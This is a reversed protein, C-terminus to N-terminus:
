VGLQGSVSRPHGLKGWVSSRITKGLGTGGGIRELGTGGGTRGQKAFPFEM